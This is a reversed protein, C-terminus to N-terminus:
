YAQWICKVRGYVNSRIQSKGEVRSYKNLGGKWIFQPYEYELNCSSLHLCWTDITTWNHIWRIGMQLPFFFTAISKGVTLTGNMTWVENYIWVCLLNAVHISTWNIKRILLISTWSFMVHCSMFRMGNDTHPTDSKSIWLNLLTLTVYSMIWVLYWCPWFCTWSGMNKSPWPLGLPSSQTWAVLLNGVLPTMLTSYRVRTWSLHVEVPGISSTKVQFCRQLLVCISVHHKTGLSCM